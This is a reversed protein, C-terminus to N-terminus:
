RVRWISSTRCVFLLVDDSQVAHQKTCRTAHRVYVAYQVTRTACVIPFTFPTLRQSIACDTRHTHLPGNARTNTQKNPKRAQDKLHAHKYIISSAAGVFAGIVISGVFVQSAAGCDASVASPLFSSRACTHRGHRIFPVRCWQPQPTRRMVGICFPCFPSALPM